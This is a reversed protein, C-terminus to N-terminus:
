LTAASSAFIPDNRSSACQSASRTFASIPRTKAPHHPPNPGTALPNRPIAGPCTPHEESQPRLPKRAPRRPRPASQPKTLPPTPTASAPAEFGAASSGLVRGPAHQPVTFSSAACRAAVFLQTVALSAASCYSVAPASRSPLRPPPAFCRGAAPAIRSPSCSWRIAPVRGPAHQSIAARQTALRGRPRPRPWARNQFTSACAGPRTAFYGSAADCLARVLPLRAQNAMVSVCSPDHCAGRPADHEAYFISM